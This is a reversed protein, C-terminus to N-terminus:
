RPYYGSSYVVPARIGSHKCISTSKSRSASSGTRYGMGRNESTGKSNSTGSKLPSEFFACQEALTIDFNKRSDQVPSWCHKGTM